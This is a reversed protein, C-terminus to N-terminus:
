PMRVLLPLFTRSSDITITVTIPESPPGLQGMADYSAVSLLWIGAGPLVTMSNSRGADHAVASGGGASEYSLQYGWLDPENSEDWRALVLSGSVTATLGSPAAPLAYAIAAQSALFGGDTSPHTMCAEGPGFLLGIVGADVLDRPHYSIYNVRNDQYRQCTNDLNMNGVPIQWLMLRKGAAASLANEWLIARAPRPLTQNTDDWWPRLGSGADRDSWEVFILDAEAGGMANIFGATRQAMSIADEPTGNNPDNNTAWMSAHPAVLANPATQHIVDVIRRGFGALTNPYGPINLAVPYSSPDDPQVGPPASDSNSLQQMFGYFDPEIHFIVPADGQAQRAAEEIAALYTAVAGADQLKQAYCSGSEGCTPPLGLMMYVSIVPIYGKSWAQGAFRGVFNGGWGDVYWEYTIYQYVYDWPVGSNVQWDQGPTESWENTGWALRQPLVAPLSGGPPALIVFAGLSLSSRHGSSDEASVRLMHEGAPTGPAVTLMTGYLGDGAAGDNSRGDDRLAVVGRGLNTADVTVSTIDGVGQPDSVHARVVVHTEGDAPAAGPQLSGDSLVPGDPSEDSILAIDDIYLTPQAGGSSAQWVLGTILRNDAGLDALSIQVESWAGAAPPSVSIEPGHAGDPDDARVAYVHLQQGGANGGHIFFRLRSSGGTDLGPHYLYLGDWGSYTVAISNTGSYVPSTAQFDVSAWSWNQWSAALADHYIITTATPAAPISPPVLAVLMLFLVCLRRRHSM